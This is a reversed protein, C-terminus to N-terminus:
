EYLGDFNPLPPRFSNNQLVLSKIADSEEKAFVFRNAMRITLANLERVRTKTAKERESCHCHKMMLFHTSSLPISLEARVATNEIGVIGIDDSHGERRVYAPADSTVFFCDKDAKWIQWHMNAMGLAHRPLNKFWVRIHAAKGSDLDSTVEGRLIMQEVSALDEEDFRRKLNELERQFISMMSAPGASYTKLADDFHEMMHRPRRLMAGVFMAFDFREQESIEKGGVIRWLVPMATSEIEGLAKEAAHNWTGDRNKFSYIYKAITADKTKLWTAYATDKQYQCLLSKPATDVFRNLYSENVTHQRRYERM